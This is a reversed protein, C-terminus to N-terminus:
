QESNVMFPRDWWLSVSVLLLLGVEGAVIMVAISLWGVTTLSDLDMSFLVPTEPLWAVERGILWLTLSLLLYIFIAAVAPLLLDRWQLRFPEPRWQPLRAVRAMLRAVFDPPLPALPYADLAAEVVVERQQEDWEDM